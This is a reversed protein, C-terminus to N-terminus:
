TRGGHLRHRVQRADAHDARTPVISRYVALDHLGVRTRAGSRRHGPFLGVPGFWAVFGHGFVWTSDLRERIAIAAGCTCERSREASNRRRSVSESQGDERLRLRGDAGNAARM